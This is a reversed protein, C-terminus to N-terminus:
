TIGGTKLRQQQTQFIYRVVREKEPLSRHLFRVGVLRRYISLSDSIRVWCVSGLVNTVAGNEGVPLTLMVYDGRGVEDNTWVAVGGGSLDLTEFTLPAKHPLPEGHEDCLHAVGEISVFLRFDERRQSRMIDTLMTVRYYDLGDQKVADDVAIDVEYNAAADFYTVTISEGNHLRFLASRYIPAAILFSDESVASEYSSSLELFSEDGLPPRDNFRLKIRQGPKLYTKDM